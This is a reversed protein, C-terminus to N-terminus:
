QVGAWRRFNTPEGFIGVFGPHYPEFYPRPEEADHEYDDQIVRYAVGVSLAAALVLASWRM